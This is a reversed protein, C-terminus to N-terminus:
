DDANVKVVPSTLGVPMVYFKLTEITKKGVDLVVTDEGKVNHKVEAIKGLVGKHKGEYILGLVNKELKIKEKLKGAKLDFVASDGTKYGKAEESSVLLNRGDHFTLQTKGKTVTTKRALRLLKLGAEGAPIEILNLGLKSPVVRFNQKTAELSIVDMLGLGINHKRVIKGDVKVQAGALIFKVERAKEALRLVDRIASLLTLSRKKSHKGPKPTPAWYSTRKGGRWFSPAILRKTHAM